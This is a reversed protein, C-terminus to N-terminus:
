ASCSSRSSRPSARWRASHFQEIERKYPARQDGVLIGAVFVALFGSGHSATALGYLASRARWRDAAPLPGRQAAAGPADAAAAALRRGSGVAARRGDPAAFHWAGDGSPTGAASGGAGLLSVMLAIGVPDNAGSEGELLTGSRGAIERRGLM